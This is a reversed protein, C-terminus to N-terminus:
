CCLIACEKKEIKGNKMSKLVSFMPLFIYFIPINTKTLNKIKGVDGLGWLYTIINKKADFVGSREISKLEKDVDDRIEIKKNKLVEVVISDSNNKKVDFINAFFGKKLVVFPHIKKKDFFYKAGNNDQIFRKNPISKQNKVFSDLCGFSSM